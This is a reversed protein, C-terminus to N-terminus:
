EAVAFASSFYGQDVIKESYREADKVNTFRGLRVRYFTGRDDTFSVIHVNKYQKSLESKYQLANEKVKFAGVQVTFNGNWYNVSKFSVPDKTERSYSVAEGLATIRVKAIGKKAIGIRNAGTYSLDIIRGTVFPGRDNIRVVIKKDNELNHVSVWTNIPLTKHAATMDYMNYIEGNATKRGHFKRGYWSAIGTQIFGGAYALPTYEVGDIRYPKQTGKPAGSYTPPSGTSSRKAPPIHISGYRKDIGSSCGALGAAVFFLIM